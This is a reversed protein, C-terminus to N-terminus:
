TVFQRCCDDFLDEIVYNLSMLLTRKSLLAHVLRSILPLLIEHWSPMNGISLGHQMRLSILTIDSSLDSRTVISYVSLTQDPWLCGVQRSINLCTSGSQGGAVVIPRSVIIIIVAVRDVLAHPCTVSADWRGITRANNRFLVSIVERPDWHFARPLEPEWRIALSILM